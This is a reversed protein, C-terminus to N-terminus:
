KRLKWLDGITNKLIPSAFADEKFKQDREFILTNLEEATAALEKERDARIKNAIDASKKLIAIENDKAELIKKGQDAVYEAIADERVGAVFRTYGFYLAIIILIVGAIKVYFMIPFM